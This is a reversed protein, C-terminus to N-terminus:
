GGLDARHGTLARERVGLSAFSGGSSYDSFDGVIVGNSVSTSNPPTPAYVDNHQIWFVALRGSARARDRIM